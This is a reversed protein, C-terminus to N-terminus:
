LLVGGRLLAEIEALESDTANINELHVSEVQTFGRLDSLKATMNSPYGEFKNYDVALSQRPLEAIIFPTQMSMQGASGTVSGSRQVTPKSNMVANTTNTIGAAVAGAQVGASAGGTAAMGILSTVSAVATRILNSFDANTVPVQVACNGEFQSSYLVHGDTTLTEVFAVCSGSLIDIRYFVHVPNGMVEDVSLARYGVYPLWITMKTNPAYDLASGWYEKINITGCDFTVWQSAAITMQIGTGVNGVRVETIGGDPVAVPVISLGLICDMPNAFLKRFSDLSFADSWMYSALARIQPLTPNFLTVFGTDVASIGPLPSLPLDDSTGDFDGTGGGEASNGGADLPNGEFDFLFMQVEYYENVVNRVFQPNKIVTAAHPEVGFLEFGLLRCLTVDYFLVFNAGSWTDDYYQVQYNYSYNSVVKNTGDSIRRLGEGWYLRNTYRYDKITHMKQCYILHHFASIDPDDVASAYRIGIQYSHGSDRIIFYSTSVNGGAMIYLNKEETTPLGARANKCVDSLTSAYLELNESNYINANYGDVIQDSSAYRVVPMNYIRDTDLDKVKIFLM